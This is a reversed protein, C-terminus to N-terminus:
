GNQFELLIKGNEDPSVGSIQRIPPRGCEDFVADRDCKSVFDSRSDEQLGITVVNDAHAITMNQSVALNVVGRLSDEDRVGLKGLSEVVQGDLFRLCGPDLMIPDSSMDRKDVDVAGSSMGVGFSVYGGIGDRVPTMGHPAHPSPDVATYVLLGGSPGAISLSIINGRVVISSLYAGEVYESPGSVTLDVVLEDPIDHKGADVFPYARGENENLWEIM